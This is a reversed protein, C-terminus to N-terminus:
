ETRLNKVPDAQAAKAVYLGVTLFAVFFALGGSLLFISPGLSARYVFNRLWTGMAYYAAPWAIINAVAVILLYERSFLIVIESTRAGLVKRIGIEKVRRGVNYATLGFLGACSLAVALFAFGMLLKGTKKESLYGKAYEQDLFRIEPKEEPVVRALTERVFDLVATREGPRHRILVANGQGPRFLLIVPNIAYHFSQLHFDKIVGIITVDRLNKGQPIKIKAGIPNTLGLIRVAAENVLVASQVDGSMQRSFGRGEIIRLGLAEFYKEDGSLSELSVGSSLDTSGTFVMMNSKGKKGPVGSTSSVALVNPHNELERRLVDYRVLIPSRSPYSVAPVLLVNDKNFGLDSTMVFAMQRKVTLTAILLVITIGFQLAFLLKRFILVPSPSNQGKGLVEVPKHRSITWAPAIGAAFAALFVVLVAGAIPIVHAKTLVVPAGIFAMFPKFGRELIFAGVIMASASFLVSERLFQSVIRNRTAGLVHRVGIERMRELNQSSTLNVFNFCAIALILASAWIFIVFYARSGKAVLNDGLFDTIWHLRGLPQIHFVFTEATAPDTKKRALDKLKAQVAPVNPKGKFLAYTRTSGWHSWGSDPKIDNLAEYSAYSLVIDPRLDTNPPADNIVGAVVIPRDGYLAKRGVVDDTGFLGRASSESLVAAFPDRLAKGSDGRQWSYSFIRFFDPDAFLVTNATLPSAGPERRLEVESVNEVRVAAEVEPFEAAMDPALGPMAGVFKMRNGKQGWELAIRCIRDKNRHFDEYRTENVVYMMMLLCASVGVSLGLINILSVTKFRRINRIAVKFDNMM